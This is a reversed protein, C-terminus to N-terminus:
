SSCSKKRLLLNVWVFSNRRDVRESQEHATSMGDATESQGADCGKGVFRDDDTGSLHATEDIEWLYLFLRRGLIM